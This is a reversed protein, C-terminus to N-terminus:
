VAATRQVDLLDPDSHVLVDEFRKWGREAVFVAESRTIPILWVFITPPDTDLEHILHDFYVPQGCYLAELPSGDFLPGAPGLVQGHLLAQGDGLLDSAVVHVIDQPGLPLDRRYCSFLLEQRLRRDDGLALPVSSVGLTAFTEAAEVPQGSFRAIKFERGAEEALAQEADSM